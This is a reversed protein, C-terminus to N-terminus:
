FYVVVNEDKLRRKMWNSIKEKEALSMGKKTSLHVISTPRGKLTSDASSFIVTEAFSCAEINPYFVKLENILDKGIEPVNKLSDIHKEKINITNKLHNIEGTLREMETEGKIIKTYDNTKLGHVITLKKSNLGFEDAKKKLRNQSAEDLLEGGFVLEIQNTKDNITKSLLFNGEWLSVESTFEAALDKFKEKQVLTYGFYASPIVTLLIVIGVVIKTNKIQNTLLFARRPLKLLQSVLMASLAIFVSNIVFLYMAGVFFEMNWVSLGYGATCLPPMLATAIAVGPIVNGKNKSSIGVIGALGGFLAIFVDYISPSTRALLESDVADLPTLSFYLTSAILVAVISFSYNKFSKKLLLFNYTAISYGIGNIPGMLPSILMAGIIVATSNMNLGVSAVFSAFILIWLNTGRFVVGKEISEHILAPDELEHSLRLFGFFKKLTSENEM